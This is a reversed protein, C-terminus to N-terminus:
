AVLSNFKKVAHPKLYKEVLNLYYRTGPLNVDKMWEPHWQTALAKINPLYVCESEFPPPKALNDSLEYVNSRREKTWAILKAEQPLPWGFMQHHCSTVDFEQGDHTRVTHNHHHNEVHQYLYGGAKAILLQGGRCIGAMPIGHEIALDVAAVEEKDRYWSCSTKFNTGHGYIDPCIDAGGPIIVLSVDHINKVFDNFDRTLEGFNRHLWYGGMSGSMYVKPM